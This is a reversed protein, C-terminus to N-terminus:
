SARRRSRTRAARARRAGEGVGASIAAIIPPLRRAAEDWEARLDDRHAFSALDRALRRVQIALRLALRQRRDVVDLRVRSGRRLPSLRLARQAKPLDEVARGAARAHEDAHALLARASPDGGALTGPAGALDGALASATAALRRTSDRLPDPPLVFAAVALSVVSGVGTEWIREVAYSDANTTVVLVLLASIAIQTNLEPGTRLFLGVALGAVLLLVIADDLRRGARRRRHRARRGGDRRAHARALARAGRAHRRPDRGDPRDGRVRAARSRAAALDVVRADRRDAIRVARPLERRAVAIRAHMASVRSARRSLRARRRRRVLRELVRDGAPRRALLKSLTVPQLHRRELARLIAPLARLTESATAAATTCSCSRARSARQRARAERDGEDRAAALRPQRGVVAGPDARPQPRPPQGGARDRRLAPPLLAAPHRDRKQVLGRTWQLQRTRGPPKLALLDAHSYTHDALENGSAAIHRLMPEMGRTARGVVFFTAHAHHHALVRLIAPTRGSPGDDFTLAVM